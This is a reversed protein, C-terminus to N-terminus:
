LRKRVGAAICASGYNTAPAFTDTFAADWVLPRGQGFPFFTIGDSRRGRDLGVPELVSHFGAADLARTTIDNIAAHRPFRAASHRCSSPHLSDPLVSSGSRCRHPHYVVLGLRLVSNTMTSSRESRSSRLSASGSM